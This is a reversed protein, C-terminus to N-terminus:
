AGPTRPAPVAGRVGARGGAARAAHAPCRPRSRRRWRTGPAGPRAGSPRGTDDPLSNYALPCLPSLGRRAGSTSCPARGSTASAPRAGAFSSVGSSHGTPVGIWGQGRVQTPHAGVDVPGAEEVLAVVPGVQAPGQGGENGESRRQEEITPHPLDARRELDGLVVSGGDLRILFGGHHAE